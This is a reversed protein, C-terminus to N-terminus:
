IIFPREAVIRGAQRKAEQRVRAEPWDPHQEKLKFFLTAAQAPTSQPRRVQTPSDGRAVQPGRGVQSAQAAQDDQIMDGFAAHAAQRLAAALDPALEAAVLARARPVVQSRVLNLDNLQPYLGALDGQLETVASQVMNRRMVAGEKDYKAKIEALDKMAKRHEARLKHLEADRRELARAIEPDSDRLSELDEDQDGGAPQQDAKRAANSSPASGKEGKAQAKLADLEQRIEALTRDRAGFADDTKSQDQVVGDLWADVEEAPAADLAKRVAAPLKLRDLARKRAAADSKSEKADAKAEKKAKGDLGDAIDDLLEDDFQTVAPTAPAGGGDGFDMGDDDGEDVFPQEYADRMRRGDAVMREPTQEDRAPESVPQPRGTVQPQAARGTAHRAALADLGPGMSPKTM